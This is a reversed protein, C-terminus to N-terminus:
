NIFDNYIETFREIRANRIIPRQTALFLDKEARLDRSLAFSSLIVSMILAYYCLRYYVVRARCVDESIIIKFCLTIPGSEFRSM